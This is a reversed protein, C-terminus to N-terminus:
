TGFGRCEPKGALGKSRGGHGAGIIRTSPDVGYEGFFPGAEEPEEFGYGYGSREAVMEDKDEAPRGSSSAVDADNHDTGSGGEM